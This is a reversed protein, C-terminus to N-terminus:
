WRLLTRRGNSVVGEQGVCGEELYVSLVIVKVSFRWFIWITCALAVRLLLM